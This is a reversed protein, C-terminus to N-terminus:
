RSRDGETHTYDGCVADGNNIPTACDIVILDYLGSAALAAPIVREERTREAEDLRILYAM